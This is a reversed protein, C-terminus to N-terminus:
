LSQHRQFGLRAPLGMERCVLATRTKPGRAMLELIDEPRDLDFGIEPSRVEAFPLGLDSAVKQHKSFSNSGFRATIVRPPRRLLLNTGGDSRAPCAVVPGITRLAKALAPPTVLPLDGLLVALANADEDDATDQATRVAGALTGREEPVPRARRRAAVELIAEDPSVVWVHWNGVALAADLVDELMALTLAGRELPTLVGALRTKARDLSKVPIAIIRM